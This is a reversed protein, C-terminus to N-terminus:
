SAKATKEDICTKKQILIGIGCSTAGRIYM